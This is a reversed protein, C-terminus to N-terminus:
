NYVCGLGVARQRGDELDLSGEARTAAGDSGIFGTIFDIPTDLTMENAEGGLRGGPPLGDTQWAAQLDAEEASM